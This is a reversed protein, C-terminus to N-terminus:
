LLIIGITIWMLVCILFGLLLGVNIGAAIAATRWFYKGIDYM